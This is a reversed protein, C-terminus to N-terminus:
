SEGLGNGKEKAPKSDVEVDKGLKTGVNDTDIQDTEELLISAKGFETRGPQDIKKIQPLSGRTM